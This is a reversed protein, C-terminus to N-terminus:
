GRAQPRASRRWPCARAAAPKSGSRGPLRHIESCPPLHQCHSIMGSFRRARRHDARLRIELGQAPHDSQQEAVIRRHEDDRHDADDDAGHDANQRRDIDLGDRAINFVPQREAPVAHLTLDQMREGRHDANIQRAKGACGDIRLQHRMHRLAEQVLQARPYERPHLLQGDAVKVLVAAAIDHAVVRVVDVREALEDRLAQRLQERRPQRHQPQQQEHQIEGDRQHQDHEEPDEEHRLRRLVDASFRGFVEEVLLAREALDLAIDLLHHVALLDDLDEAMLLRRLAIEVGDVVLEKVVGVMRLAVRVDEHGDHAVDAINQIHERGEEASKQDARAAAHRIQRELVQKLRAAHDRRQLDRDDRREEPHRLLKRAVDRLHRLLDVGDDHRARAADKLEDVLLRLVVVSADREHVGHFRRVARQRFAGRAGTDPCPLARLFVAFAPQHLEAAVHPEEIHVKGVVRLLGHQMINREVGLGPLLQGKDARGARALGGDRVEDVAEVVDGVALDAIVADVDVVDFLRIQAVREADHQLIHIQEGARHHVVDAVALEVRRVLFADRRRLEGVRM